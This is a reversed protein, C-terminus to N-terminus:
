RTSDSARITRDSPRIGSASRAGNQVCTMRSSAASSGIRLDLFNRSSSAWIARVISRRDSSPTVERHRGKVVSGVSRFSRRRSKGGSGSARRPRRPGAVGMRISSSSLRSQGLEAAPRAEAAM